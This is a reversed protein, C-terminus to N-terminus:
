ADWRPMIVGCADELKKSSLKSNLPRVAASDTDHTKIEVIETDLGAKRVIHRAWDARSVFGTAACHYLGSALSKELISFTARALDRVHTPAGIQDNVVRLEQNNKAASIIKAVFNGPKGSYVWSTRLIIHRCGSAAIAREGALKTAGYINLPAPPDDETYAGEKSGDFVYDTSYSVLLAHHKLAEEAMCAVALHNVTNAIDAEQEARDVATYAAANLIIDPRNEEIVARIHDPNTLDVYSRDFAKMAPNAALLATGLQGNKGFLVISM